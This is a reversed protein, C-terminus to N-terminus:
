ETSLADNEGLVYGFKLANEPERLGREESTVSQVYRPHCLARLAVPMAEVGNDHHLLRSGVAGGTGRSSESV